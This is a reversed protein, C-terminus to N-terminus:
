FVKALRISDITGFCGEHAKLKNMYVVFDVVLSM